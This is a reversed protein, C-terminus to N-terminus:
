DDKVDAFVNDLAAAPEPSPSNLAEKAAAEVVSACDRQVQDDNAEDILQLDELRRRMKEIPDERAAAELQERPLRAGRPSLATLRAVRSHVLSPGFLPTRVSGYNDALWHVFGSLLDAGVLGIFIALAIAPAAGTAQSWVRSILMTTLAVYVVLSPAAVRLHAAGSLPTHTAPASPETKASSTM